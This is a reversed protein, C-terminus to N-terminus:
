FFYNVEVGFDELYIEFYRSSTESTALCVPIDPHRVCGKPIKELRFRYVNKNLFIKKLFEGSM